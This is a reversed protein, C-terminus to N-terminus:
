KQRKVFYKKRKREVMMLQREPGRLTLRYSFWIGDLYIVREATSSVDATAEKSLQRARKKVWRPVHTDRKWQYRKNEDLWTLFVVCAIFFTVVFGWIAWAILSPFLIILGAFLALEVLLVLWAIIRM